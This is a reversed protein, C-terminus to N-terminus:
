KKLFVFASIALLVLLIINTYRKIVDFQNLSALRHDENQIIKYFPGLDRSLILADSDSEGTVRVALTPQLTDYTATNPNFYIWQLADQLKYTGPEKALGTYTFSKSGLVRGARRTVDQRLDPPYLELAANSAPVPPMIAALNGEGELQFLYSFSKNVRVQKKSLNERLTYVGVPVVDRLPHPPLEKVKIERERAFFTKFGEQRDQKLLTPNKAVKYKIMKLSLAPFRIPELNIPYLVAEYLKFRLYAKDKITVEEPTIETFEFAEEWVNPQQLQRLIGGIQNEFDYFDLLRQDEKALYFYLAVNLGEGVYIEKKNTYLTLFANDAQEIYQQPENALEPAEDPAVLETAPTQATAAAMPLVKISTGASQVTQGNVKMTFPKLVFDGEKLGAYNQTITLITSTQGGVIITKTTSFKSSKKFGEIEPFPTYEQLPKDKIKISVTYYQNIPVPSKGLEISVQQAMAPVVLITLLFVFLLLSRM